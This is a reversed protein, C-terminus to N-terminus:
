VEVELVAIAEGDGTPVPQGVARLGEVTVAIAEKVMAMAEARTDGYTAVSLAPVSATFVEEMPDWEIVVSYRYRGM